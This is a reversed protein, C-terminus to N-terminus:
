APPAAGFHRRASDDLLRIVDEDSTQGFVEYWLGVAYFCEPISLCIVQDADAQLLEIAEESAVPVAIILQAPRAARVAQAAVKMTSGTAMGDDVLIVVREQLPLAQRGARYLTERRALELTERQTVADVEAQPINYDLLTDAQLFRQGGSAIAGMAFEPRGPLGLKRVLLIDLPLALASAVAYGVPVGGRPLALVLADRRRAYGNLRLALLEGAQRRDKFRMLQHM